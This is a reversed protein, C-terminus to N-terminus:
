VFKELKTGSENQPEPKNEQNCGIISVILCILFVLEKKQM